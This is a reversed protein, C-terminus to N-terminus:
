LQSEHLPFHKIGKVKAFQAVTLPPFHQQGSPFEGPQEGLRGRKERQLHPAARPPPFRNTIEAPMGEPDRVSQSCLLCLMEITAACGLSLFFSHILSDYSAKQHEVNETGFM